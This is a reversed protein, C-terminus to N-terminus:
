YKASGTGVDYKIITTRDISNIQSTNDPQRLISITIINQRSHKKESSITFMNVGISLDVKQSFTGDPRIIIEQQNILVLAEPETQGSITIATENTITQTLPSIIMLKPPTFINKIEWSLYGVLSFILLGIVIRRLLKPTLWALCKNKLGTKTKPPLWALQTDKEKQYMNILVTESFHYFKALRKLFQRIYIDGPLRLYDGSELKDLYQSSVQTKLSVELLNLGKKQREDKLIEPLSKGSSLKKYIFGTM